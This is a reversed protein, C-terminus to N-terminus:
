NINAEIDLTSKPEEANLEPLYHRYLQKEIAERFNQDQVEAYKFRFEGGQNLYQKLRTNEEQESIHNLLKEKINGASGVYFVYFKGDEKKRSLRYVGSTKPLTSLQTKTLPLLKSWNIQIKAM